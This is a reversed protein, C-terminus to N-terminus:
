RETETAGPGGSRLRLELEYELKGKLAGTPCVGVCNGCFVCTTDPMDEGFATAVHSEFGRGGWTLAFTHQVDDACVQICRWCMVCQSYDRIYFPNDVYVPHERRRGGAFRGPDAGYRAAQAQIEPADHLDVTSALLELLVRRATQVRPSATSVAMGPTVRVVCAPQLTRAGAVEVCCLRCVANATLEPHYCLTPIEAGAQRAAQLITAGPSVRVPAGDITLEIAQAPEATM